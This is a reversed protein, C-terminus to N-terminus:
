IVDVFFLVAACALLGAGALIRGYSASRVHVQSGLAFAAASMAGSIAGVVFGDLLVQSGSIGLGVGATLNDLSLLFPLLLMAYSRDIFSPTQHRRIATNLVLLGCVALCVPALWETVPGVWDRVSLGVMLGLVTAATEFGFCSAAYWFRRRRGLGLMGLSSAVAVNDLGVLIALVFVSM